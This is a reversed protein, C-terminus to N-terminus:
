LVSKAKTIRDKWGMGKAWIRTNEADEDDGTFYEKLMDAFGSIGGVDDVLNLGDVYTCRLERTTAVHYVDDAEDGLIRVGAHNYVCKPRDALEDSRKSAGHKKFRRAPDMEAGLEYEEVGSIRIVWGDGYDYKYILTDSMPLIVIDDELWDHDLVSLVQKDSLSKKERLYKEALKEYLTEHDDVLKRFAKQSVRDDYPMCLAQSIELRELLQDFSQEYFRTMEDMTVDRVPKITGRRMEETLKGEKELEYYEGFPMHIHVEPYERMFNNASCKAVMRHESMGGYPKKVNYKSRLYTKFSKRGDYDDDWYIDDFDESPFRFYMGCLPLWDRFSGDGNPHEDFAGYWEYDSQLKDVDKPTGGTMKDFVTGPYQFNHLHSNQFGFAKQIAFHLAYLTIDEPVLIERIFGDKIYGLRHFIDLCENSPDKLDLELRLKIVRKVPDDMMKVDGGQNVGVESKPKKVQKFAMKQNRKRYADSKIADGSRASKNYTGKTYPLYAQVTKESIFLEKAIEPVAMGRNYLVGIEDSRESGWLGETILVRQTKVLTTGLNQATKLVSGTMRYDEIIKDYLKDEM